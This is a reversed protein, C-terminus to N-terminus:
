IQEVIYIYIHESIYIYLEMLQDAILTRATKLRADEVGSGLEAM